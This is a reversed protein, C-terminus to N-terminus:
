CHVHRTRMRGQLMCLWAHQYKCTQAHACAPLMLYRMGANLASSEAAAAAALAATGRATLYAIVRQTNNAMDDVAAAAAAVHAACVAATSSNADCGDEKDAGTAALQDRNSNATRRLPADQHPVACPEAGDDGQTPSILLHRPLLGLLEDLAVFNSKIDNACFGEGDPPGVALLLGCLSHSAHAGTHAHDHHSLHRMREAGNSHCARALLSQRALEPSTLEPSRQVGSLTSGLIGNM